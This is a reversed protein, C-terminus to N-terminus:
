FCTPRQTPDAPEDTPLIQRLYDYETVCFLGPGEGFLEAREAFPRDGGNDMLRNPEDSNNHFGEGFPNALGLSHGIEHSLTTGILSGLVFVGCAVQGSRDSAPCSAGSDLPAPGGGALDASSVPRGGRDLRFPDFVDDFGEGAGEIPSAFGGPDSSFAFLSEIFVGGYGPSGDEQTVANVGGVQDYLRKNGTDKGPTNDYGLLGLGNPDPGSVEVVSYLAFDEPRELRIELNVTWYDREVVEIIRERIQQDLARLGFHRLSEVYSPKFQLHVVQKVPALRLDFAQPLGVIEDDQYQIIPTIQGSFSGTVRRLDIGSTGLADDENIVYRVLRGEVWEPVLTLIVDTAAGGDPTFQGDLELLTVGGAEGGVFGGGEMDVYQGLSAAPPTVAFLAPESIDYLVAALESQTVAGGAHRNILLVTGEFTGPRIGAITPAFDFTGTTRDHGSTELPVEVEGTPVCTDGGVPTFCGALSAMTTGEDGGLLLGSGEVMLKDNVFILQGTDVADLVPTLSSRVELRLDIANSEHTQGDVPSDVEVRATGVLDGQPGGFAAFFAEDVPVTMRDFDEFRPSLVVERAEGDVSGSLVLRTTGWPHDVFSAGEIVLLSGPVVTSPQVATLALGTLGTDDEAEGGGGGSCAAALPLALLLLASRAARMM